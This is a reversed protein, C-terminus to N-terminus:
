IAMKAIDQAVMLTQNTTKVACMVTDDGAISGVIGDIDLADVAAAVAMAMGPVTKIVIINEATNVSLFGDKLVRIYKQKMDYKPSELIVYKQRGDPTAVKTLNLQRIDRSITAQTVNYGQAMLMDALDEQTEVVNEKILEVIKEQRIKKM